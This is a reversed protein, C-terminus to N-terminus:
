GKRPGFKLWALASGSVVLVPITLWWPIVEQLKPVAIWCVFLAIGVFALLLVLSAKSEMGSYYDVRGDSM